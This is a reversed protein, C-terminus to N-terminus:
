FKVSHLSSDIRNPANLNAGDCNLLFLPHPFRSAHERCPWSCIQSMRSCCAATVLGDHGSGPVSHLLYLEASTCWSIGHFPISLLWRSAWGFTVTNCFSVVLSFKEVYPLRYAVDRIHCTEHTSLLRSIWVTKEWSKKGLEESSLNREAPRANLDDLLFWLLKAVGARVSQRWNGDVTELHMPVIHCLLIENRGTLKMERPTYLELSLAWKGM